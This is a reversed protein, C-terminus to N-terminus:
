RRRREKAVDALSAAARRLEIGARHSQLGELDEVVAAAAQLREESCLPWRPGGQWRGGVVEAAHVASLARNVVAVAAFSVGRARGEVVGRAVLDLASRAEGGVDTRGVAM